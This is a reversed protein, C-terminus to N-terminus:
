GNRPVQINEKALGNIHASERFSISPWSSTGHLLEHDELLHNLVRTPPNNVHARVGPGYPSPVIYCPPEM